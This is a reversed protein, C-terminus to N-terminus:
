GRGWRQWAAGRSHGTARAIDAWSWRHKENATRVIRAVSANAEDILQLLDALDEIDGEDHALFRQEVGRIARRVFALYESLERPPRCPTPKTTSPM